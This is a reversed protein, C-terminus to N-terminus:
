AVSLVSSPAKAAQGDEVNSGLLAVFTDLEKVELILKSPEHDGFKSRYKELRQDSGSSSFRAVDIAGKFLHV